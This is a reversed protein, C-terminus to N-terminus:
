YRYCMKKTIEAHSIIESSLEANKLTENLKSELDHEVIHDHIVKEATDKAINDREEQNELTQIESKYELIKSVYHYGVALTLFTFGGQLHNKLKQMINLFTNIIADIFKIKLEVKKLM